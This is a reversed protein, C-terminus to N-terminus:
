RLREDRRYLVPDARRTKGAGSPLLSAKRRMVPLWITAETFEANRLYPHWEKWCSWATVSDWQGQSLHTMRRQRRSPNRSAIIRIKSPACWSTPVKFPWGFLGDRTQRPTSSSSLCLVLCPCAANELWHIPHFGCRPVHLIFRQNRNEPGYSFETWTALTGDDVDRWSDELNHGTRQFQAFCCPALDCLMRRQVTSVAVPSMLNLCVTALSWSPGIRSTQKRKSQLHPHFRM